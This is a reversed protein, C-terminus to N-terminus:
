AGVLGLQNAVPQGLPGSEMQVERGGRCTPEVQDLAPEGGEGVFLKAAANVAGGPFKFVCDSIEDLMVVFVGLGKDPVFCCIL